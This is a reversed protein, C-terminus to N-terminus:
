SVWVDCGGGLLMDGRYSGGSQLNVGGLSYTPHVHSSLGQTRARPCSRGLTWAGRAFHTWPSPVSAGTEGGTPTQGEGTDLLSWVRQMPLYGQEGRVGLM